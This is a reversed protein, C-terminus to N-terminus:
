PESLSRRRRVHSSPIRQCQRYKAVTRRSIDVGTRRLEAHIEADSLPAQAPEAAVMSAIRARVDQASIPEGQRARVQRSLFRSLAFTGRECVLAAGRIARSVTSPHLGTAQAVDAQRLPRIVPDRGVFFGAQANVIAQGVTLLTADRRDLASLFTGGRAKWRKVFAAGERHNAGGAPLRLAEVQLRLCDRLDRAAIGSPGVSRLLSVGEALTDPAIGTDEAVAELTDRLYGDSDLNHALVEAAQMVPVQARTLRVEAVLEAVPSPIAAVEPPAYATGTASPREALLPNADLEAAIADVLEARTMALIQLSQRQGPTMALRQSQKLGLQPRQAM